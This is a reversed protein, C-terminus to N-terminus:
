FPLNDPPIVDLQRVKDTIDATGDVTIKELQLNYIEKRLKRWYGYAVEEPKRGRLPFSGSAQGRTGVGSVYDIKITVPQYYGAM